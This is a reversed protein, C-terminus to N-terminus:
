IQELSNFVPIKKKILRSWFIQLSALSLTKSTEIFQLTDASGFWCMM